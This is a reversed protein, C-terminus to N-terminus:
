ELSSVQHYENGSDSKQVIRGASEETLFRIFEQRNVAPLEILLVVADTYDGNAIRGEYKAATREVLGVLDYGCEVTVESMPRRIETKLLKITEAACGGYARILGGKGLKTGGFWRSVILVAGVLNAKILQELIPRGATGSPEGEDSSRELPEAADSVRYAWCNHTANHHLRSREGILEVAHLEDNAACCWGLFKSGKVTTKFESINVPIHYTEPESDM